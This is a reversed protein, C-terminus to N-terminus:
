FLIKGFKSREANEADRYVIVIEDKCNSLSFDKSDDKDLEAGLGVRVGPM